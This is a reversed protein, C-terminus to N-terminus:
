AEAMEGTPASESTSVHADQEGGLAHCRVCQKSVFLRAGVTPNDPLEVSLPIAAPQQEARVGLAIALTLGLIVPASRM